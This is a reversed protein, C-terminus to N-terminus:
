IFNEKIPLSIKFNKQGISGFDYNLGWIYLQERGFKYHVEILLLWVEKFTSLLHRFSLFSLEYEIMSDLKKSKLNRSVKSNQSFM